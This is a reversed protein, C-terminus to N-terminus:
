SISLEFQFDGADEGLDEVEPFFALGLVSWPVDGGEALYPTQDSAM